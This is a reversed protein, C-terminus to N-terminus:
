MLRMPLAIVPMFLAVVVFMVVGGFMLVLLPFVMELLTHYRYAHRRRYSDALERMAWALNGAPQASRLVAAAAADILGRRAMSECWDGGRELDGRVGVLGTRLRSHPLTLHLSDVAEPLPLSSEVALALSDLLLAAQLRWLLWSTGPLDWSILGLSRGLVYLLLLSGLGVLPAVILAFNGIWDGAALVAQTLPPLTTGFEQFIRRLSPVIKLMVFALVNVAFLPVFVCYALKASLSEVTATHYTRLAAASRLAPALAGARCGLQVLPQAETPLLGRADYLAQPLPVGATLAEALGDTRVAFAGSQEQAFARLTPGLPIRRQAAVALLALLAQQRGKNRKIWADVVVFLGVVFVWVGLFQLGRVVGIVGGAILLVWGLLRLLGEIADVRWPDRSVRLWRAVGVLVLGLLMAALAPMVIQEFANNM